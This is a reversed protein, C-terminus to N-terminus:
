GTISSISYPIARVVVRSEYDGPRGPTAPVYRGSCTIVTIVAGNVPDMVKVSDPDDPDVEFVSYIRYSIEVAGDRRRLRIVDGPQLSSLSYFVAPARSWTVHGAFVANGGGGPQATFDYWAVIQGGEPGEPVAPEPKPSDITDPDLGFTRVPAWVGIKDIIMDYEDRGLATAYSQPPFSQRVDLLSRRAFEDGLDVRPLGAQTLNESVSDSSGGLAFLGALVLGFGGLVLAAAAIAVRRSAFVRLLREGRSPVGSAKRLLRNTQRAIRM